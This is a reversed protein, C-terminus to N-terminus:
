GAFPAVQIKKEPAVTRIGKMPNKEWQENGVHGEILTGEAGERVIVRGEEDVVNSQQM